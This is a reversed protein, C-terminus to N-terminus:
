SSCLILCVISPKCHLLPQSIPSTNNRINDTWLCLSFKRHRLRKRPCPLGCVSSIMQPGLLVSVMLDKEPRMSSKLGREPRRPILCPLLLPPRQHLCTRHICHATRARSSTDRGIGGEPRLDKAGLLRSSQNAVLTATM